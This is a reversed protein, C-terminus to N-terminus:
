EDSRHVMGPRRPAKGNGLAARLSRRVGAASLGFSGLLAKVRSADLAAERRDAADITAEAEPRALKELSAIGIVLHATEIREHGSANAAAASVQWALNAGPSLESM